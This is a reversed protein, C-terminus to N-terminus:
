LWLTKLVCRWLMCSRIQAIDGLSRDSAGAKHLRQDYIERYIILFEELDNPEWSYQEVVDM